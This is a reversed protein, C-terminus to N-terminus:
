DSCQKTGRINRSGDYQQQHGNYFRSNSIRRGDNNRFVRRSQGADNVGTASSTYGGLTGLDSAYVHNTSSIFAHKYLGSSIHANGVVQGSANIDFAQDEYSNLNGIHRPNVANADTVFIGGTSDSM